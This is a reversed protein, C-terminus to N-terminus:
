KAFEVRNRGNQKALYLAQDAKEILEKPSDVQNIPFISIGISITIHEPCSVSPNDFNNFNHEEVSSRLKESVFKIGEKATEPLLLIFEEGGYRAVIDIRRVNLRLVNALEQLIHDGIQHGYNDNVAKFRDIDIMLCGLNSGFRKARFFEINIIEDFRRRNVLKTLGDTTSLKYLGQNERKLHNIHQNLHRIRISKAVRNAVEFPKAPAAILDDVGARWLHESIEKETSPIALIAIDPDVSRVKIILNIIETEIVNLDILILDIAENSLIQELSDLHAEFNLKYSKESKLQQIAESDQKFGLLVISQLDNGNNNNEAM